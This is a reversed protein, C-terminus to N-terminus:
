TSTPPKWLVPEKHIYEGPRLIRALRAQHIADDETLDKAEYAAVINAWTDGEKKLIKEANVEGCGPLGKYGDVPDGTLIQKFFFRDAEELTVEFEESFNYHRCAIQRMDKDPSVLIFADPKLHCDIGMCDDAELNPRTVTAFQERCKDLLRRYGVPKRKSRKGKYSCDLKKRFNMHHTFYLTVDDTEFKQQLNRTERM